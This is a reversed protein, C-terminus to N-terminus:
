AAQNAMQKQMEGFAAQWKDIGIQSFGAGIEEKGEDLGKDVAAIWEEQSLTHPSNAKKNDDPNEHDRHLDSEVMPPSVEIVKISTSRLQERLSLTFSKVFAKTACYVPVHPIPVYALGSGLNM